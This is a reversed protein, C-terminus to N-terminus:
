GRLARAIFRLADDEFLLRIPEMQKGEPSIETMTHGLGRAELYVPDHGAERLLRAMERSQAVPVTRDSSGHAMWVPPMEKHVHCMPSAARCLEPQSAAPGGLFDKVMTSARTVDHADQGALDMIGCYNVVGRMTPMPRGERLARTALLMVWHGGASGGLMVCRSVDLGQAAGNERLWAACHLLDAYADAFRFAPALRYSPLALAVGLPKVRAWLWDYSKQEGGRWGGGHIGLVFPKPSSVDGGYIHIFGKEGIAENTQVVKREDM